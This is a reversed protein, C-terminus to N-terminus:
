YKYPLQHRKLEIFKTRGFSDYYVSNRTGKNILPVIDEGSPSRSYSVRLPLNNEARIRNELHTAYIESIDLGKPGNGTIIDTFNEREIKAWAFLIHGMEHSLDVFPDTSYAGEIPVPTGNKDWAISEGAYAYSGAKSNQIIVARENNAILQVLMKGTPGGTMLDNLATSVADIFVSGGSYINKEYDMFVWSGKNETWTYMGDACSVNLIMGTPDTYKIPNAACFVYTNFRPNRHGLRDIGTWQALAPYYHRPGFDSTGRALGEFREKGAFLRTHQGKPERWPEGYPYYGNHQELQGHGDTVMTVNGQWDSHYFHFTKAITM